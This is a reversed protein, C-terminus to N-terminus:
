QELISKQILSTKERDFKSVCKIDSIEEDSSETYKNSKHSNIEKRRLSENERSRTSLRSNIKRNQTM